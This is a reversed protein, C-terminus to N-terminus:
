YGSSPAATITVSGANGNQSGLGGAVSTTGLFSATGEILSIIGGGGGSGSNQGDRGGAAKLFGNGQVSAAEILITGGAGGADGGAADQGCGNWGSMDIVGNLTAAQLHDSVPDLVVLKLLGGGASCTGVNGGYSLYIATPGAPNQGGGSGMLAPHVPDDNAKGGTLCNGGNDCDTGGAGGHGGGSCLLWRSLPPSMYNTQGEGPGGNLSASGSYGMGVGTITAGADLTFCTCYVTVAGQITV